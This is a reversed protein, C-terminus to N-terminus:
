TRHRHVLDQAVGLASAPDLNLQVAVKIVMEDGCGTVGPVRRSQHKFGADVGSRHDASRVPGTSRNDAQSGARPFGSVNGVRPVVHEVEVMAVDAVVAVVFGGGYPQGARRRAVASQQRRPGARPWLPGRAAEPAM